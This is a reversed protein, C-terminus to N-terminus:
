ENESQLSCDQIGIKIHGSNDKQYHLPIPQKCSKRNHGYDGCQGCQRRRKGEGGSPIREKRQRGTPRRM